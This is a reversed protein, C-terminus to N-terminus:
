LFHFTISQLAKEIYQSVAIHKTRQQYAQPTAFPTYPNIFVWSETLKYDLPFSYCCLVLSLKPHLSVENQNQKRNSQWMKLTVMQLTLRFKSMWYGAGQTYLLESRQIQGPLVKEKNPLTANTFDKEDHCYWLYQCNLFNLLICKLIFTTRSKSFAPLSAQSASLVVRRQSWPVLGTANMWEKRWCVPSVPAFDMLALVARRGQSM